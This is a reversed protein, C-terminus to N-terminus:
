KFRAPNPDKQAEELNNIHRILDKYYEERQIREQLETEKQKQNNMEM